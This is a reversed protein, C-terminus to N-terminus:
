SNCRQQVAVAAAGPVWHDFVDSDYESVGQKSENQNM